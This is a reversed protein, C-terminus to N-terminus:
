RGDCQQGNVDVYVGITHLRHFAFAAFAEWTQGEQLEGDSIFVWVRGPEGRLRRALAIGGAQSIAQGLSGATVEHGPSHEAGILEVTSGDENFSDLAEPALRGTEILTSYLVLVSLGLGMALPLSAIGFVAQLLIGLALLQSALYSISGVAVALSGLVSVPRSRFRCELLDPITYITHLGAMRRLRRGLTWCLLGGTFGVSASIWLSAIGMRYTLGPGGLFVFGSFAASMMGIGTAWLGVRQGAIFFDREDHTRRAAWFGIACLLLLYLLAAIAITPRQALTLESM